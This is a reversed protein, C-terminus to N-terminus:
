STSAAYRAVITEPACSILGRRLAVAVAEAQTNVGLKSFIQRKDTEVRRVPVCMLESIQRATRGSAIFALVEIETATLPVTATLSRPPTRVTGPPSAAAEVILRVLGEIGDRHRACRDIGHTRLGTTDIISRRTTAVFRVEPWSTQVAHAMRVTEEWRGDVALVVIDPIRKACVRMLDAEGVAVGLVEIGAHDSLLRQLGERILRTPQQVVIRMVRTESTLATISRKSPLERRDM